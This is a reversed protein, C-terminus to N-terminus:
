WPVRHRAKKPKEPSFPIAEITGWKRSSPFLKKLLKRLFNVSKKVGRSGRGMLRRFWLLLGILRRLVFPSLTMFWLGGGSLLGGLQYLTVGGTYLSLLFLGIFLALAFLLDAPLTLAPSVRRPARLFDYVLGLGFGLGLAILLKVAQATLSLSM